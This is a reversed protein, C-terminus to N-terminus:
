VVWRGENIMKFVEELYDPKNMRKGNSTKYKRFGRKNLQDRITTLNAENQWFDVDVENILDTDHKPRRTKNKADVKIDPGKSKAKAKPTPQSNSPRGPRGKPPRESEPNANDNPHVTYRTREQSGSAREGTPFPPVPKLPSGDAKQKPKARNDPTRENKHETNHESKKAAAAEKKAAAAEKKAAAAEKKAAAAEKKAQAAAAEIDKEAQEKAAAAQAKAEGKQRQYENEAFNVLTARYQLAEQRVSEQARQQATQNIQNITRQAEAGVINERHMAEQLYEQRKREHATESEAQVQQRIREINTAQQDILAQKELESARKLKEIEESKDETAQTGKTNSRNLPPRTQVGSSSTQSQAQVGSENTQAQAQVGSDTKRAGGMSSIDDDMDDGMEGDEHSIDFYLASDVRARRMDDQNDNRLDHINSGTNKAIEKLLHEKYSEKSAMEQQKEMQRMGEGDLQSLVFGNRLFTANRNPFKINYLKDSVAVNILSEYNPKVRLGKMSSAM